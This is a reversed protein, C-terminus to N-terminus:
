GPLQGLPTTDGSAARRALEGVVSTKAALEAEDIVGARHLDILKALLDAEEFPAPTVSTAGASASEARHHNGETSPGASPGVPPEVAPSAGAADHESKAWLVVRRIEDAEETRLGKIVLDTGARCEISVSAGTLRRNTTVALVDRMAVRQRLRGYRDRHELREEFVM